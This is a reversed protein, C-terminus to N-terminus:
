SDRITHRLSTTSFRLPSARCRRWLTRVERAEREERDKREAERVAQEQQTYIVFSAEERVHHTVGKDDTVTVALVENDRGDQLLLCADVRRWSASACGEVHM